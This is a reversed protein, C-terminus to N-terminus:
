GDREWGIVERQHVVAVGEDDFLEAGGSAEELVGAIGVGDVVGGEMEEVLVGGLAVDFAVEFGDGEALVDAEEGFGSEGADGVGAHEDGAHGLATANLDNGEDPGGGEHEGEHGGAHASLAEGEFTIEGDVSVLAGLGDFGELEAGAFFAFGLDEDFGGIAVVLHEFGQAVGEAALHADAYGGVEGEVGLVDAGVGSGLPAFFAGFDVEM